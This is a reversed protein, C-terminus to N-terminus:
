DYDFRESLIRAPAVGLSCLAAEVAVLMPPPGCLAFVWTRLANPAFHRALLAADIQGREGGLDQPADGHVFVVEVGTKESLRLLEEREVIQRPTSDAYVLKRPRTDGELSMQRLVSILPAIGIGGAILGVGEAHHGEITLAGHPGDVYAVSGTKVKGITSTTDGLEKILFLLNPGSAPASAISFPNERHAFPNSGINLWVFQGARYELGRGDKPAIEIKWIREAAKEVGAVRWPHRSQGLPIAVYLWIIALLVVVGLAIWYGAVVPHAAYRGAYLVHHFALGTVAIASIGHLWRWAEYRYNPAGRTQALLVLSPLLVWAVIGTWLVSFDNSVTLERTTDWPYAPNREARYLFPHVLAAALATLGILRHVQMMTDIAVTRSLWRFRGSLTFEILILVFALM